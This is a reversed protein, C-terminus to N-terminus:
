TAHPLTHAASASPEPTLRQNDLELPLRVHAVSGGENVSLTLSAEEGYRKELMERLTDLAIGAGDTTTGRLAGTHREHVSLCLTLGERHARLAVTGPGAHAGVGHKVANEVLPQLLLAPVRARELEAPLDRSVSLREPGLRAGEIALYQEAHRLESQLPADHPHHLLYRYLDAMDSVMERAHDPDRRITARLTNLANFLFHPELRRRLADLELRGTAARAEALAVASEERALVMRAINVFVTAGAANALLELAWIYWTAGYRAATGSAFASVVLLVCKPLQVAVAVGLGRWHEFLHAGRQAVLGATLGDLASAAVAVAGEAHNVRLVYFLGGFLGTIVGGRAGTLVAAILVGIGQVNFYHDLWWEGMRSGWMSLATAVAVAPGFSRPRGVGLLRDRLPPVLVTVLAALAVLGAKEILEIVLFRPDM